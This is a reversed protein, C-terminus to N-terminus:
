CVAHHTQISVTYIVRHPGAPGYISSHTVMPRLPAEARAAVYRADHARMQVLDSDTRPQLLQTAAAEPQQAATPAQQQATQQPRRGQVLPWQQPAKAAARQALKAKAINMAM